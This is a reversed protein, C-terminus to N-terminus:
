QILQQVNLMGIRGFNDLATQVIKDGQEVSDSSVADDVMSLNIAYSVM